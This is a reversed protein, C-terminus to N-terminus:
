SFIDARRRPDNTLHTYAVTIRKLVEMTGVEIVEGDEVNTIVCNHYVESYQKGTQGGLVPPKIVKVLTLEEKRKAIRVYVDVIDVAGDLDTLLDDWVKKGYMEYLELVLTGINSAAPTVIDIPHQADLPHIPVPGPGVPTPSTHSIQRALGIPVGGFVFATFGSGGVRARQTTDAM